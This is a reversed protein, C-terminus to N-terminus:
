NKELKEKIIKIWSDEFCNKPYNKLVSKRLESIFDMYEEETLSNVYDIKDKWEYINERDLVILKKLKNTSFIANIEPSFYSVIPITGLSILEHLSLCVGEFYNTFMCAKFKKLEGIDENKLFGKKIIYESKLLSTDEGTGYCSIEIKLKDAISNLLKIGKCWNSHRGYNCIKDKNKFEIENIFFDGPIFTKLFVTNKIKKFKEKIYNEFNENFVCLNKYFNLPSPLFSISSLLYYILSIIKFQKLYIKINRINIASFKKFFLPHAHLIFLQDKLRKDVVSYTSNIILDYKDYNEIKYNYFFRKSFRKSLVKNSNEIKEKMYITDVDHGHKEFVNKLHFLYKEVGGVNEGSIKELDIILIKM